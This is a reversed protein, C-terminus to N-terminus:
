FKGRSSSVNNMSYAHYSSAEERKIGLIDRGKNFYLIGLNRLADAGDPGEPDFNAARVFAKVKSVKKSNLVWSRPGKKLLSEVNDLREDLKKYNHNIAQQEGRLPKLEKIM